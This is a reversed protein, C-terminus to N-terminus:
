ATQPPYHAAPKRLPVVNPGASAARDMRCTRGCERCTTTKSEANAEHRAGCRGCQVTVYTASWEHHVHRASGPVIVDVVPASM